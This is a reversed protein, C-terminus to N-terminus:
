PHRTVQIVISTLAAVAAIISASPAIVDQLVSTSRPIVIEDGSRIEVRSVSEYSKTIDVIHNGSERRLLVRDLRGRETAGGALAIAQAVTTGPPVTYITPQRVQGSVIIRLLPTEVFAPETEFRTLFTRIRDEVASMPVGVVNIERYLPHILTGDASVACECSLEKNRLVDIRLVDGPSL